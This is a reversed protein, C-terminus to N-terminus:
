EEKKKPPKQNLEFWYDIGLLKGKKKRQGIERVCAMKWSQLNAQLLDPDIRPYSGLLKRYYPGYKLLDNLQDMCNKLHGMENKLKM